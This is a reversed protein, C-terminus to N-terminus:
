KEEGITLMKKIQAATKKNYGEVSINSIYSIVRHKYENLHSSIKKIGESFLDDAIGVGNEEVFEKLPINETTVIPLGEALYEYVKGSACYKNNLDNKHYHVVGIDCQNLIYKLENMPVKELFKVNNINNKKMIENIKNKDEPPGDGVIYLEFDDSLNRMSLILEDTKRLINIGGTSVINIKKTFENKYKSHLLIKDYNGDLFRINEFVLPKKDLKYHDYMIESRQKNACLVVDAKKMLRSEYKSLVRGYTSKIEDYFYLERVDQVVFKPKFIKMIVLVPISSFMNDAVLIDIKNRQKIATLLTLCFFKMYNWKSLYKEKKIKITSERASKKNNLSCCITTVDGMEEFVRRLEFLRGDYEKIGYSILLINM